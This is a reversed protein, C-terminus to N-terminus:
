VSYITPLTLHTYSVPKQTRMEYCRGAEIAFALKDDRAQQMSLDALQRGLQSDMRAFRNFTEQAPAWPGAGTMAM